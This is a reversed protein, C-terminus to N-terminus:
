NRLKKTPLSSKTGKGTSTRLSSRAAFSFPLTKRYQRRFELLDFVNVLGDAHFDMFFEYNDDMSSLGYTQRFSLLDFVDVTRDGNSDGYYCFFADSEQDGLVYDGTMPIGNRTVLSGNVTLQYNGNVLVGDANRTHSDFQILATTQQGDFARGVSIVVPEFTNATDSTRQLMSFAGDEFDVDGGFSVSVSEVASRQAEGGNIEIDVVETPVVSAGHVIFENLSTDHWAFQGGSVYIRFEIPANTLYGDFPLIFEFTGPESSTTYESDFIQSGLDFGDVSTFVHFQRSAHFGPREITFSFEAGRLDLLFGDEPEVSFSLYHDGALSEELTLPDSGFIGTFGFVNDFTEPVLGPGLNWGSFNTNTDLQSTQSWPTNSAPATGTFDSEVLVEAAAQPSVTVTAVSSGTAGDSDTVILEVEHVGLALDIEVSADQSVVNGDVLWMQSVITGDLDRSNASDFSVSEVGNDDMDILRDGGDFRAVPPLNAAPNDGIWSSTATYKPASASTQEQDELIGWSGWKSPNGIFSFNVHLVVGEDDLMDLYQLYLDEMRSDRNAAILKDTLEQINENGSTGVLHQGGEYTVLWTDYKEALLRQSEVELATSAIDAEARDLIEAVTISSVEGNDVIEDAISGAFYPAIALVDPRLGNPNITEDELADMRVVTISSNASQTAMVKILRDAASSGFEDEFTEWIEVSRLTCYLQGSRWRDPDLGIAEGQDQVWTTQNFIGNWTENSYEIYCKLDTDLNDRIYAAMNRVYNDDARAPVCFWASQQQMNALEVLYEVAVGESRTQTFSNTTTRDSWSVVPNNNTAGLDMFRLLGFTGM